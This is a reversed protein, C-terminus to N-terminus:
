NVRKWVQYAPEGTAPTTANYKLADGVLTVNAADSRARAHPALLAESKSRDTM